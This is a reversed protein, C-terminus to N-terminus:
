DQWRVTFVPTPEPIGKLTAHGGDEFVFPKGRCLEKVGLSVSIGGAEAVGCLRAALQVTAGFLDDREDSVPEGASIGIGVHLPPPSAAENRTSLARQVTISFTVASSISAFSSMIGDGTHKVERGDHAALADRVIGDHERLLHMHGDDGLEFTQAVSGRMDTFVIARVAPSSYATGPPHTPITGMFATLNGFDALEIIANAVNGHADRHVRDVAERDPGEALCFISGTSDDLWYTHYKVGHQEQLALDALHAEAVQEPSVGPIDHRDLFIPV